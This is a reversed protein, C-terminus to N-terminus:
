AAGEMDLPSSDVKDGDGADVAADFEVIVEAEPGHASVIEEDSRPGGQENVVAVECSANSDSGRGRDAMVALSLTSISPLLEGENDNLGIGMPDSGQRSEDSAPTTVVTQHTIAAAPLREPSPIPKASVDAAGDSLRSVSRENESIAMDSDEQYDQISDLNLASFPYAPSLREAAEFRHISVSHSASSPVGEAAVYAAVRVALNSLQGTQLLAMDSGEAREKICNLIVTPLHYASDESAEEAAENGSMTSSRGEFPFLLGEGVSYAQATPQAIAKRTAEATRGISRMGSELNRLRAEYNERLAVLDQRLMEHEARTVLPDGGVTYAQGARLGYGVSSAPPREDM